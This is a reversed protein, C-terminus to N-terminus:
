VKIDIEQCLFVKIFIEALRAEQQVQRRILLDQNASFKLKNHPDGARTGRREVRRSQDWMRRDEKYKHVNHSM